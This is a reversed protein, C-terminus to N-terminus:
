ARMSEYLSVFMFVDNILGHFATGDEKEKEKVISLVIHTFMWVHSAQAIMITKVVNSFNVYPSPAFLALPTHALEYVAITHLKKDFAFHFLSLAALHWKIIHAIASSPVPAAKILRRTIGVIKYSFFWSMCVLSLLCVAVGM